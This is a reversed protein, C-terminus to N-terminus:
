NGHFKQLSFRADELHERIFTFIASFSKLFSFTKRQKGSGRL